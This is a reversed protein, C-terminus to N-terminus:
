RCRHREVYNVSNKAVSVTEQHESPIRPMHIDLHDTPVMDEKDRIDPKAGCAVLTRVLNPLEKAMYNHRFAWHLPTRDQRDEWNFTRPGGRQLLFSTVALDNFGAAFHLPIQGAWNPTQLLRDQCKDSASCLLSRTVSQRNNYGAAWMLPSSPLPFDNTKPPMLITAASDNRLLKEIVERTNYAAALHLPTHGISDPKTLTAGVPIGRKLLLETIQYDTNYGAAYHLPIRGLADEATLDHADTGLLSEVETLSSKGAAYHLSTRGLDNVTSQPLDHPSSLDGDAEMLVIALQDVAYDQPLRTYNDQAGLNAGADLLVRVLAPTASNRVAYHLPTRGRSDRRSPDAGYEILYRVIPVSTSHRAAYHLPTREEKDPKNPDAGSQILTEIVALRTSYRSAYHLPSQHLDNHADLVNGDGREIFFKVVDAVFHTTDRDILHRLSDPARHKTRALAHLATEAKDDMPCHSIKAHVEAPDRAWYAVLRQRLCSENTGIAVVPLDPITASAAQQGSTRTPQALSLGSLALALTAARRLRGHLIYYRGITSNTSPRRSTRATHWATLRHKRRGLSALFRAIKARPRRNMSPHM